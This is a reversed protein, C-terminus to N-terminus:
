SQERLTVEIPEEIEGISKGAKVAKLLAAGKAAEKKRHLESPAVFRIEEPRKQEILRRIVESYTEGRGKEEDFLSQLEPNIRIVKGPIVRKTKKGEDAM